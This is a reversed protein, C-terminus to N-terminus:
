RCGPPAPAEAWCHTRLYDVTKQIATIDQKIPSLPTKDPYGNPRPTPDGTGSFQWGLLKDLPWGIRTYTTSPLAATYRAVVLNECGCQSTVGNEWLYINGYLTPRRGHEALMTEAFKNIWDELKAKGPNKPNRTGEVDLQPWLDGTGWGGADEVIKLFWHVQAVPDTAIDAYHYAMRFFRVGYSGRAEALQRTLPWYKNFWAPSYDPKTSKQNPYFLGQTAKLELWTWPWGANILKAIDPKGGLDGAYLDVGLPDM